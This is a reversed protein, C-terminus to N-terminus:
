ERGRFVVYFALSHQLVTRTAVIVNAAALKLSHGRLRSTDAMQFFDRWQVGELFEHLIKYVLIMDGKNMSCSLSRGGTRIIADHHPLCM